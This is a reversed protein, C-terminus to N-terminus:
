RENNVTDLLYNFVSFVLNKNDEQSKCKHAVEIDSIHNAYENHEIIEVIHKSMGVVTYIIGIVFLIM